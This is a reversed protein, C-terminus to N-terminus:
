IFLRRGHQYTRAAPVQGLVIDCNIAARHRGAQEIEAQMDLAKSWFTLLEGIGDEFYLEDSGEPLGADRVARKLTLSTWGEFPAIKLAHALINERIHDPRNM